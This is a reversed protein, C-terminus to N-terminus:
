QLPALEAQLTVQMSRIPRRTGWGTDLIRAELQREDWDRVIYRIAGCTRLSGSKDAHPFLRSAARGRRRPNFCMPMRRTGRRFLAQQRKDGGAARNLRRCSGARRRSCGRMGAGEPQQKRTISNHMNKEAPALLTGMARQCLPTTRICSILLDEPRTLAVYFCRGNRRSMGSRSITVAVARRL